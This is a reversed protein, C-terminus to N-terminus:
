CEQHNAYAVFARLLRRCNQRACAVCVFTSPSSKATTIVHRWLSCSLNGSRGRLSIQRSITYNSIDFKGLMNVRLANERRDEETWPDRILFIVRSITVMILSNCFWLIGWKLKNFSQLIHVKWAVLFLLKRLLNKDSRLSKVNLFNIYFQLALTCLYDVSHWPFVDWKLQTQWRFLVICGVQVGVWGPPHPGPASLSIVTGLFLNQAM